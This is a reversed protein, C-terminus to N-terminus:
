VVSKRDIASVDAHRYFGESGTVWGISLVGAPVDARQCLALFEYITRKAGVDPPM